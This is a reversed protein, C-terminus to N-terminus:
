LMETRANKAKEAGIATKVHREEEPPPLVAKMGLRQIWLERAWGTTHYLHENEQEHVADYAKRVADGAEGKMKKGLEGVLEWNLHCKSEAAVICEAAVIQAADADGAALAANMLGVLSSAQKQVIAVAPWDERTVDVDLALMVQTYVRIHEETEDLYKKWEEELEELQACRIATEYVAVGGRESRQIAASTDNSQPMPKPETAPAPLRRPEVVGLLRREMRPAGTRTRIRGETSKRRYMGSTVRARSLAQGRTMRKAGSTAAYSLRYLLHSKIMLDYTRARGRDGSGAEDTEAGTSGSGAALLAQAVTPSAIWPDDGSAIAHRLFGRVRSGGRGHLV